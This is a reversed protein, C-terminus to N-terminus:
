WNRENALAEKFIPQGMNEWFLTLAYALERQKGGIAFITQMCFIPYPLAIKNPNVQEIKTFLIKDRDWSSTSKRHNANKSEITHGNHDHTPFQDQVYTGKKKDVRFTANINDVIRAYTWWKGFTNTLM